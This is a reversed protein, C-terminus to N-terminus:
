NREEKKKFSLSNQISIKLFDARSTNFTMRLMSNVHVLSFLYQLSACKNVFRSNNFTFHENTWISYPFDVTM